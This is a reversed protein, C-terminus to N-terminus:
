FAAWATKLGARDVKMGGLYVSDIRRTNRIDDLPNADLVVFSATKQPAITGLDSLGLWEANTRTAAVIVQAPTMGSAVMEEM